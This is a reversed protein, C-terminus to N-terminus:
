HQCSNKPSLEASKEEYIDTMTEVLILDVGAKIGADVTAKFIEYAREFEMDGLPKLLHGLPGIDLAVYHDKGVAPDKETKEIANRAHNVASAIIVDLPMEPDDAPFKLINGGFTNTKLINAGAKIYDSHMKEIVDGHTINWTEPLEGPKLGAAQLMTGCGGEFYTFGERIKKMVMVSKINNKEDTTM